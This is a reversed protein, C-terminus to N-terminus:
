LEDYVAFEKLLSKLIINFDIDMYSCVYNLVEKTNDINIESTLFDKVSLMEIQSTIHKSLKNTVINRNSTYVKKTIKLNNIFVNYDQNKEYNKELLNKMIKRVYYAISKEKEKKDYKILSLNLLINSLDAILNYRTDIKQIENNDNNYASEELLKMLDLSDEKEKPKTEFTQQM